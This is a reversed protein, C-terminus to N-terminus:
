DTVWPLGYATRQSEQQLSDLSLAELTSVQEEGLSEKVWGVVLEETVQEYPTTVDGDLDIIVESVGQLVEKGGDATPEESDTAVCKAEVSIIKGTTVERNLRAVSWATSITM